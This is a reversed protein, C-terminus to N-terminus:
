NTGLVVRPSLQIKKIGEVPGQWNVTFVVNDKFLGELRAMVELADIAANLDDKKMALNHIEWLRRVLLERTIEPM